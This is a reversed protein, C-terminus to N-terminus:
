PVVEQHFINVLELWSGLKGNHKTLKEGIDFPLPNAILSVYVGM